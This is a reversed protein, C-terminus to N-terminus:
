SATRRMGMERLMATGTALHAEAAPREGLGRQLVGLDLHCRATLPRMGLGAAIALAQCYDQAAEEVRRHVPHSAVRGLAHLAWAENGREKHRRALDLAQGALAAAREVASGLLYAESLWGAWLSQDAVLDMSAAQAMAQELLPVADGARDSRAYACGLHAAVRPLILPINTRQCLRLSEELGPLARAADGQRLHVGAIGLHGIIVTDVHDATAAIRVAEDGVVIAAAFQGLEALCWGLWARVLVPPSVVMGFHLGTARSESYSVARGLLDVARRYDGLAHHARGVNATAVLRLSADDLSTGIAFVSVGLEIAREPDGTIWHYNGLHARVLALRRDDGLPEVLRETARLCELIRGHEGLPVLANRLDLHLDVALERAHRGHHHHDPLAALAQEFCGAAERHASRAMAQLGALRLYTVAREAVQGERYHVGLAMYHPELNAAYTDELAMGVQAHLLTRRPRLIEAYAVERIREHTFDFREGVGHLVRRRVLEEMGEAAERAPCGAARQLLAVEFERGIVAAVAALLRGPPSLRELRGSTMRRVREPVGLESSAGPVTGERVARMTEVVVFPNGESLRWVQDSLDPSAVDHGRSRGLARVLAATDTRSLPGLSLRAVGPERGLEELVGRLAPANDLEEDRATAVVLVPVAAIRRVLFAFLRLSMEDAWHLDELMVVLSRLSALRTVLHTVGEFLRLSEHSPAPLDPGGIEPLLRALESRWVPNLEGVTKEDSGLGAARLADVWPGFALVQESQYARGLLARAGHEQAAAALTMLLRSKGIGAEGTVVIARGQGRAIEELAENLRALEEHRGMLPAEAERVDGGLTGPTAGPADGRARGARAVEQFGRRLISQYLQRTEAEPEAGLERQVVSVCEQYQRLAAGRRGARAYLRMLARHAVEQLLDLAVLRLATRIAPELM